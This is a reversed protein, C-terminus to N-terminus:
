RQNQCTDHDEVQTNSTAWSDHSKQNALTNQAIRDDGRDRREDPSGDAYLPSAERRKDDEDVVHEHDQIADEVLNALIHEVVQQLDGQLQFM